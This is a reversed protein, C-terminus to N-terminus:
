VRASKVRRGRAFGFLAVSALSWALISSPEPVAQGTFKLTTDFMSYLNVCNDNPTADKISALIMVGDSLSSLINERTAQNLWGPDGEHLSFTLTQESEGAFGNLKLGTSMGNLGLSLQNFDFDGAGTDGGQMTLTIEMGTLNALAPQGTFDFLAFPLDAPLNLSCRCEPWDIMPQTSSVTIVGASASSAGLALSVVVLSRMAISRLHAVM